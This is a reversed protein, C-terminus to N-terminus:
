FFWWGGGGGGSPVDPVEYLKLLPNGEFWSYEGENTAESYFYNGWLDRETRESFVSEKWLSYPILPNSGGCTVEDHFPVTYMAWESMSLQFPHTDFGGNSNKFAIELKFSDVSKLKNSSQFNINEEEFYNWATNDPYDPNWVTIDHFNESITRPTGEQNSAACNIWSYNPDQRDVGAIQPYDILNSTWVVDTHPTGGVDEYLMQIRVIQKDLDPDRNQGTHFYLDDILIYAQTTSSGVYWARYSITVTTIKEAKLTHGEVQVSEGAYDFEVIVTNSTAPVSVLKITGNVYTDASVQQVLMLSMSLVSVIFLFSIRNTRLRM